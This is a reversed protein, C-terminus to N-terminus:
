TDKKKKTMDVATYLQEPDTIPEDGKGETSSLPDCTPGGTHGLEQEKNDKKKGKNKKKSKDPVAYVHIELGVGTIEEKQIRQGNNATTNTCVSDLDDYGASIPGLGTTKVGPQTNNQKVNVTVDYEQPSIKLSNYKSLAKKENVDEYLAGANDGVISGDEDGDEDGQPKGVASYYVTDTKIDQLTVHQETEDYTAEKSNNARKKRKVVLVVILVVVLLITLVVVAVVGM